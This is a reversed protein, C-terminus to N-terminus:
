FCADHEIGSANLQDVIEDTSDPGNALRKLRVTEASWPQGCGYCHLDNWGEGELPTVTSTFQAAM